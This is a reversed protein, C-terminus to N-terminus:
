VSVSLRLGEYHQRIFQQLQMQFNEHIHLPDLPDDPYLMNAAPKLTEDPEGTDLLFAAIRKDLCVSKSLLSRGPQDLEERQLVYKALKGNPLLFSVRAARMAEPTRCATQLALSVNPAKNTLDDQLFGIIREYKRDLEVALALMVIRQEARSLGFVSSLYLLPLSVGSSKGGAQLRREIREELREIEELLVAEEEAPVEDEEQAGILRMFEDESVFMGRFSDTQVDATQVQRRLYILQLRKDLLRLEEDYHEWAHM